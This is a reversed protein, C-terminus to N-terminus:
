PTPGNYVKGLELVLRPRAVEISGVTWRTRMWTVYRIGALNEDLFADAVISIQNNVRFDDLIKSGGEMNRYIRTINGFYCREVIQDEWVGPSVEKPVGVGIAGYFRAM